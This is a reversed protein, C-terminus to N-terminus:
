LPENGYGSAVAGADGRAEGPDFAKTIRVRQVEGSVQRRFEGAPIRVFEMKALAKEIREKEAREREAKAKAVDLERETRNLLALAERYREGERGALTLYKTIAQIAPLYGRLHLYLRAKLFFYEHPLEIGQEDHLEEIAVTTVHAERLEGGAIATELKVMLRDLEIEPPLQAALPAAVLLIAALATTLRM